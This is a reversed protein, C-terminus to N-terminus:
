KFNSIIIRYGEEEELTVLNGIMKSILEFHEESIFKFNVNTGDYSAKYISFSTLSKILYGDFEYEYEM